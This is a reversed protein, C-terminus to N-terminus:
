KRCWLIHAIESLEYSQSELSDSPLLGLGVGKGCVRSQDKTRIKETLGGGGGFLLRSLKLLMECNEYCLKSVFM